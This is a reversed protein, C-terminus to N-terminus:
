HLRVEQPIEGQEEALGLFSLPPRASRYEQRPLDHGKGAECDRRAQVPKVLEGIEPPLQRLPFSEFGKRM